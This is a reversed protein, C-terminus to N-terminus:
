SRLVKIKEGEPILIVKESATAGDGWHKFELSAGHKNEILILQAKPSVGYEGEYMLFLNRSEVHWRAKDYVFVAASLLPLCAHCEFPVGVPVTKTLLFVKEKGSEEYAQFLVSSVIGAKKGFFYEKDDQTPFKMNEWVSIRHAREYNGFIMTLAQDEIFLSAHNSSAISLLPAMAICTLVLNFSFKYKM